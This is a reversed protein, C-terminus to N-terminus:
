PYKRRGTTYAIFDEDRWRWAAPGDWMCTGNGRCIDDPCLGYGGAHGPASCWEDADSELSGCEECDEAHDEFDDSMRNPSGATCSARVAPARARFHWGERRRAYLYDLPAGKRPAPRM